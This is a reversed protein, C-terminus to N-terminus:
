KSKKWKVICVVMAAIAAVGVVGCVACVAIQWPQLKNTPADKPTPKQVSCLAITISEASEGSYANNTLAITSELVYEETTVKFSLPATSRPSLIKVVYVLPTFAYNYGINMPQSVSLTSDGAAVELTLHQYAYGVRFCSDWLTFEEMVGYEAAMFEGFRYRLLETCDRGDSMENVYTELIYDAYEGLTTESADVSYADSSELDLADGFILLHAGQRANINVTYLRKLANYSHSGFVYLMRNSENLNFSFSTNESATITYEHIVIGPDFAVTDARFSMIDELSEAEFFSTNRSSYDFWLGDEIIEGQYTIKVENSPFECLRGYLPLTCDLTTASDAHLQYTSVLTAKGNGYKIETSKSTIVANSSDFVMECTPSYWDQTMANATLPALATSALLIACFCILIVFCYRLKSRLM